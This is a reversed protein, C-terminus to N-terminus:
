AALPTADARLKGVFSELRTWLEAKAFFETAGRALASAKMPVSSMMCIPVRVDFSRVISILQLGDVAAMLYATLILDARDRRLCELAEISDTFALLEFDPCNSRFWRHVQEIFERDDDVVVCRLKAPSM